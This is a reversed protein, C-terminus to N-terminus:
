RKHSQTPKGSSGPKSETKSKQMERTQRIAQQHQADKVAMKGRADAMFIEQKQRAVQAALQADLVKGQMDMQMEQQKMALEAQKSRQGMEMDKQKSAINLQHKQQEFQMKQQMEIMKPDPRQQQQPQGTQAM